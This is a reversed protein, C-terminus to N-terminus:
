STKQKVWIGNRREFEELKALREPLRRRREKRDAECKTCSCPTFAWGGTTNHGVRCM